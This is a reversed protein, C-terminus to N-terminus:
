RFLFTAVPSVIAATPPPQSLPATRPVGLKDDADVTDETVDAGGDDDM